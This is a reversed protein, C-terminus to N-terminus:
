LTPRGGQPCTGIRLQQDGKCTFTHVATATNAAVAFTASLVLVAALLLNRTM